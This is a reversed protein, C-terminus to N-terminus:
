KEALVGFHHTFGTVEEVNSFGVEQLVAMVDEV